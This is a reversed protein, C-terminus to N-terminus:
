KAKEKQKKREWIFIKSFEFLLNNREFEIKSLHRQMVNFSSFYELDIRLHKKM